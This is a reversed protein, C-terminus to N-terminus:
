YMNEKDRGVAAKDGYHTNLAKVDHMRPIKSQKGSLCWCGQHRSLADHSPKKNTNKM